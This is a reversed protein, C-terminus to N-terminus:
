WDARTACGDIVGVLLAAALSLLTLRRVLPLARALRGRPSIPRTM